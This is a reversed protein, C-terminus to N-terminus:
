VQSMIDALLWMLIHIVGQTRRMAERLSKLALSLQNAVTKEALNLRQSIEDTTLNEVRSLMFVNRQTKPLRQVLKMVTKRLDDYELMNREEARLHNQYEVYDEYVPANVVARLANIRYRRAITFLLVSLDREPDIRDKYRWLNVFVDQVIEETMQRSKVYPYCYAYLRNVYRRYISDFAKVSGARLGIVLEEDTM